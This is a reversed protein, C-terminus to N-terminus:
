YNGTERVLCCGFGWNTKGDILYFVLLKWDQVKTKADM